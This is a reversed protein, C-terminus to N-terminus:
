YSILAGGECGPSGGAANPSKKLLHNEVNSSFLMLRVGSGTADNLNTHLRWGGTHHRGLENVMDATLNGYLSM